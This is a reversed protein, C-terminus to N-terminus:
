SPVPMGGWRTSGTKVACSNASPRSEAKSRATFARHRRQGRVRPRPQRPSRIGRDNRLAQLLWPHVPILNPVVQWGNVIWVLRWHRDVRPDHVEEFEQVMWGRFGTDPTRASVEAFRHVLDDIVPAARGSFPGIGSELAAPVTQRTAEM